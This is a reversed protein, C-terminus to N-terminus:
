KPLVFLNIPSGQEITTRPTQEGNTLVKVVQAVYANLEDTNIFGDNNSDAEIPQNNSSNYYKQHSFCALIAETFAGNAWEGREQALEKSSTSAFFYLAKTNLAQKLESIAIDMGAAGSRMAVDSGAGSHCADIFQITTCKFDRIQDALWRNELATASLYDIGPDTEYTRIYYNNRSDVEGHSSIHLIFLDKESAARKMDLIAKRINNATANENTLKNVVVKNYLKQHDPLKNQAEFTSAFDNADDDAYKINYDKQEFNSIGVTLVYLNPKEVLQEPEYNIEQIESTNSGSQNVAKVTVKNKGEKLKIRVAINYDNKNIPVIRTGKMAMDNLDYLENNVLVSKDLIPTASKITANLEYYPEKVITSNSKPATFSILPLTTNSTSVRRFPGASDFTPIIKLQDKPTVYGYKQQSEVVALGESFDFVWDYQAVVALDGRNNIIGYKGNQKVKALGNNFPQAEEYIPNIQFSGKTNIYGYLGNVKVAALGESFHEADEFSPPIVFKGNYNMYGYQGNYAVAALTESFDKANEYQPAIVVEGQNNVFGCKGKIRVISLGESFFPTAESFLPLERVGPEKGIFGWKNAQSVLASGESFSYADDYIPQIAFNGKKDIFGYKGNVRVLALGEVFDNAVDYQPTIALEGSTNVYGWMNDLRVRALGGVFSYADQFKPSVVFSGTGNIYGWEGNVRVAALNESFDNAVEFKPRIVYNADLDIYGWRNNEKVPALLTEQASLQMATLCLCCLLM